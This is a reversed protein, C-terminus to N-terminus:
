LSNSPKTKNQALSRLAGNRDVAADGRFFQINRELVHQIREHLPLAIFEHASYTRRRGDALVVVVRDFVLPEM